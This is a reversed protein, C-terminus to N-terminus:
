QASTRLPAEITCILGDPRYEMAVAGLLDLSLTRELMMSGFGKHRPPVVTPGGREQWVISLMGAAERWALEVQGGDTSLAGHKVANTFLEHLALAIALAEKPPMMVRPGTMSVRGAGMAKAGLADQAIRGLSASEWNAQTLLDHAAALTAIRGDFAVRASEPESDKFTRHAIAQVVALTNKVRHNLEALLLERQAEARERETMDVNVGVMGLFTGDAGFRPRADTQLVRWDGAADRFRGKLSVQRHESLAKAMEAVIGDADDPHMMGRWDFDGVTAEPVNWFSRLMSNLHLCSGDAHSMWIMVPAHESMLRFREESQRLEEEAIRRADDAMFREVSFGVQRAITLALDVEHESFAHPTEYYTMFKGIAAGQAALPFFGLGRIGEAKITARVWEAEGSEDIDSVFIPRPDAEGRKWPSHGRLASRYVDSLGRWARFQAVGDSDFLLISARSCVLTATIADLAADYVADLTRARYLRDTLKYLEGLETAQSTEAPAATVRKEM